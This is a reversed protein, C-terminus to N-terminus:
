VGNKKMYKDVDQYAGSSSSAVRARQRDRLRTNTMKKQAAFNKDFQRKSEALQDKALGYQKMGMFANGISGIAGMAPAGWGGNTMGTENNTYGLMGQMFSPQFDGGGAGGKMVNDNFMTNQMPNTNGWDRMYGFNYGSRSM